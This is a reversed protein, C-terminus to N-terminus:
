SVGRLQCCARSAEGLRAAQFDKAERNVRWEIVPKSASCPSGVCGSVYYVSKRRLFLRYRHKM